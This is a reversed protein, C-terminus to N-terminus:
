RPCAGARQRQRRVLAVDSNSFPSSLTTMVTREVMTRRQVCRGQDVIMVAGERQRRM